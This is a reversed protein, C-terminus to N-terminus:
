LERISDPCKAPKEPFPEKPLGPMKRPSRPDLGGKKMVGPDVPLPTDRAIIRPSGQPFVPPSFRPLSLSLRGTIKKWVKEPIRYFFKFKKQSREWFFRLFIRSFGSCGAPFIEPIIETAAFTKKM